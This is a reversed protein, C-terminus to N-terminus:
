SLKVKVRSLLAGPLPSKPGVVGAWLHLILVFPCREELTSMEAAHEERLAKIQQQLGLVTGETQRLASHSRQLETSTIDLQSDRTFLERQVQASQADTVAKYEM